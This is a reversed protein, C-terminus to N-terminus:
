PRLHNPAETPQVAPRGGSRGSQYVVHKKKLAIVHSKAKIVSLQVLHAFTNKMDYQKVATIHGSCAAQKQM